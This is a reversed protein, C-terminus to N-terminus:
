IFLVRYRVAGYLRWFVSLPPILLSTVALDLLHRPRHSTGRARRYFFAGQLVAWPVFCAAAWGPQGALLLTSGGLALGVMAYYHLPPLRQLERRYREPHKKYLLANYMSYRQLRLSVGFRGPPAPHVVAARPNATLVGGGSEIRFHLDSDERFPATFREDFGGARQLASRRYFANCTIFGGAELHRVNRQYDTPPDDAPVRVTGCVGVVAPDAFPASGERLWAADAPYADDDIFAVVEGEAARWGINRAAAPGRGPGPLLHLRLDPHRAAVAAVVAAATPSRADDVVIVEFRDRPFEQAAVGELCRRLADDRRYTPIVVSAALGRVTRDRLPAPSMGDLAQAGTGPASVDM